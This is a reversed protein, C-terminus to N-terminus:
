LGIHLNPAPQTCLSILVITSVSINGTLAICTCFDSSRCKHMNDGYSQYIYMYFSMHTLINIIYKYLVHM